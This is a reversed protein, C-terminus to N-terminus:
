ASGGVIHATDIGFADLVAVVGSALQAVRDLHHPYSLALVHYDPALAAIYQFSTEALGFGGPLLVVTPGTGAEIITWRAGAINRQVPPYAALVSAYQEGLIM